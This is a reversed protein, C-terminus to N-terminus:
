IAGSITGVYGVWARVGTVVLVAVAAGAIIVDPSLGHLWNWGPKHRVGLAADFVVKLPWPEIVRLATEAIMGGMTLAILRRELWLSPRVHRAVRRWTPLAEAVSRPRSM